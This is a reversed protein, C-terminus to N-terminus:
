QQSGSMQKTMPSKEVPEQDAEEEISSLIEVLRGVRGEALHKGADMLAEDNAWGLERKPLNRRHRM